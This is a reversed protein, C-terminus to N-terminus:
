AMADPIPGQRISTHCTYTLAPFVPEVKELLAGHELIRGFNPLTKMFPIDSACLADICFVLLKPMAKGEMIFRPTGM